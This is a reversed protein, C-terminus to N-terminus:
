FLIAVAVFGALILLVIAAAKSWRPSSGEAGQPLRFGGLVENNNFGFGSGTYGDASNQRKHREFRDGDDRDQTM